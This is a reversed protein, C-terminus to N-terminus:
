LVELCETETKIDSTEVNKHKLKQLLNLDINKCFCKSKKADFRCAISVEAKL